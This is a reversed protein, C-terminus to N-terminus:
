RAQSPGAANAPTIKTVASGREWQHALTLTVSVLSFSDMDQGALSTLDAGTGATKDSSFTAWMTLGDYSTWKNIFNIGLADGHGGKFATSGLNGWGGTNDLNSPFYAITTFPGWPFPADYFAAENVSGGQGMAIFRGLAQNYVMKGISMPRPGNDIFIPQMTTWDSNWIPLGWQDKGAYVQYAAKTLLQDAPVRALYTCACSGGNGIFNEETAGLLYVYRDYPSKNGKGFNVFAIPCFGTPNTQDSCFIWNSYNSQWSYANGKSYVVEFHNPAGSPGGPDIGPQYIGGLAYFDPGVSIIDNVKGNILSPHSTNYGGYINFADSPDIVPITNPAPAPGMIEAVGFSARGLSNSGLFGGGDGFFTYINDDVGWTVSWLDSGNQQNFGTSWNWTLGTFVSSPCYAPDGNLSAAATTVTLSQTSLTRGTWGFASVTYTYTTTAAVAQDTYTPLATTVIQTGNRSISYSTAFWVPSWELGVVVATACVTRLSNKDNDNTQKLTAAQAGPLATSVLSLSLLAYVFGKQTIKYV